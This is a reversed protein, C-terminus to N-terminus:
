GDRKPSPQLKKFCSIAKSISEKLAVSVCLRARHRQTRTRTRTRTRTHTHTRAHTHHTRTHTHTHTHAHMYTHIHQCVWVKHQLTNCHTHINISGFRTPPRQVPRLVIYKSCTRIFTQSRCSLAFCGCRDPLVPASKHLDYINIFTYTCILIYVHIYIHIYLYTYVYTYIYVHM